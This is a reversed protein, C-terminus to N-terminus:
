GEKRLEDRIQEYTLPVDLDRDGLCVPAPLLDEKEACLWSFFFRVCASLGLLAFLGTLVLFVARLDLLYLGTLILALCLTLLATVFAAKTKTM